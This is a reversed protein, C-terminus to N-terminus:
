DRPVKLMREVARKARARIDEEVKIVPSINLLANVIDTLYIKKMDICIMKDDAPIFIKDPNQTKLTHIIGTETGIIFEKNKVKRAYDLDFEV